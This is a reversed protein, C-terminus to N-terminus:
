TSRTRPAATTSPSRTPATVGDGATVSTVGDSKTVSLDASTLVHRQRAGNNGPEPRRARARQRHRTNVLSATGVPPRAAHGHLHRQQRRRRRHQRHAALQQRQRHRAPSREGASDLEDLHRRVPHGPRTPSPQGVANSPGANTVVITYTLHAGPTYTPSGDTKTIGLNAVSAQTDTDTPATTAPRPRDRASSVTATNVLNGTQVPQRAGVCRTPSRAAPRSRSARDNITGSGLRRLGVHRRQRGRTWAPTGLAADFTDAV